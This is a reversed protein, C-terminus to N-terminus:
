GTHDACSSRLLPPWRLQCPIHAPLGAAEPRHWLLVHIASSSDRDVSKTKHHGRHLDAEASRHWSRGIASRNTSRLAPELQSGASAASPGRQKQYSRHTSSALICATRRPFGFEPQLMAETPTSLWRSYNSPRSHRVGGLLVLRNTEPEVTAPTSRM